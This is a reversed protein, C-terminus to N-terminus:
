WGERSLSRCCPLPGGGGEERMGRGRVILGGALLLLGKAGPVRSPSGCGGGM